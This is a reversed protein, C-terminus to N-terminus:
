GHGAHRVRKFGKPIRPALDAEVLEVVDKGAGRELRGVHSDAVLHALAQRDRIPGEVPGDLRDRAADADAVHVPCVGSM